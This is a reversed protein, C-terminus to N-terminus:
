FNLQLGGRITRGPSPMLGLSLADMYYRDTANDIALNWSLNKNVKYNAYFDLLTYPHWDPIPLIWSGSEDPNGIQVPRNGIRTVRMGMDLKEDFLRTGLTVLASKKPPIHGQLYSYPAGGPYCLRNQRNELGNRCVNTHTYYTGAVEAYYRGTDYRASLEWGKLHVFDLNDMTGTQEVPTVVRTLYDKTKNNFYALKARFGDGSLFLNDQSFNIGYEWNKAREVKLHRDFVPTFSTAQTEEFLSPARAAESYRTYFQLQDTPKFLISAIPSFAHHKQVGRYDTIQAWLACSKGNRSPKVCNTLDTYTYPANDKNQANIYRLSADLEWTQNPEYHASLFASWEKRWGDRSGANKIGTNIMRQEVDGPPALTEKSLSAGYNLTLDGWRESELLSTNSINVGKRDSIEIQGQRMDWVTAGTGYSYFTFFYPYYTSADTKTHWIDTKLDILDNDVPDWRHRATYTDVKVDSLAAQLAGEGRRTLSPMLEGFYSKYYMYGLQITHDDPLQFETKLLVSTNDQSTNLVAEKSRFRNLSSTDFDAKTLEIWEGNFMNIIESSTQTVKPIAGKKGAHYNGQKKRAYALIVNAHEWSKAVAISGSGDTPNAVSPRSPQDDNHSATCPIPGNPHNITAGESCKSIYASQLGGTSFATPVSSTNTILNGKIRLGWTQGKPIIDKAALTRMRAVGGIAGVGDAAASPGKDIEVSAILDPDLYNRSAVGAYGRYVTMSQMSGDIIVPVRNMGQMGRINLDIAGSNRNDGTLVGPIHKIFDGVSSGRFHEIDQENLHYQNGVKTYTKDKANIKKGIVIVDEIKEETTAQSPATAAFSIGSYLLCCLAIQSRKFAASSYSNM